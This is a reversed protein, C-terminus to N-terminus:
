WVPSDLCEVVDYKYPDFVKTAPYLFYILIWFITKILILKVFSRRYDVGNQDKHNWEVMNVHIKERFASGQKIWYSFSLSDTLMQPVRWGIDIWNINNHTM